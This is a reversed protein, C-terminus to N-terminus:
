GETGCAVSASRMPEVHNVVYANMEGAVFRILYTSMERVQNVSV